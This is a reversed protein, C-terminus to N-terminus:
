SDWLAGGPYGLWSLVGPFIRPVPYQSSPAWSQLGMAGPAGVGEMAKCSVDCCAVVCQIRWRCGQLLYLGKEQSPVCLVLSSVSARQSWHWMGPKNGVKVRGVDWLRRCDPGCQAPGLAQASSAVEQPVAARIHRVNGKQGEEEKSAGEEAAGRELVELAAAVEGRPHTGGRRESPSVRPHKQPPTSPGEAM